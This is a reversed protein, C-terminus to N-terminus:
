RQEKSRIFRRVRIFLHWCLLAALVGGLVWLEDNDVGGIWGLVRTLGHGLGYGVSAVAIAWIAAGLLNFAMFRTWHVGSMGIAMPGVTRVGYLFRISLIVTADHRELLAGVRAVKPQLSPFHAVLGRGYRRGLFFFFQDGLFGCFTAVAMIAPLGLYGRAAAAGAALLVTEGELFTGAAVAGYGYTQILNAVDM